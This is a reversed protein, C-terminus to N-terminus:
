FAFREWLLTIPCIASVVKTFTTEVKNLERRIRGESFEFVLGWKRRFADDSIPDPPLVVEDLHFITYLLYPSFIYHLNIAAKAAIVRQADEPLWNKPGSGIWEFLRTGLVATRGFPAAQYYRLSAHPHSTSGPALFSERQARRLSTAGPLSGWLEDRSLSLQPRQSQQWRLWKLVLVEPPFELDAWPRPLAFSQGDNNKSGGEKSSEGQEEEEEEARKLKRAGNRLSTKDDDSAQYATISSSGGCAVNECNPIVFSWREGEFTFTPTNSVIIEAASSEHRPQASTPHPSNLLLLLLILSPLRYTM